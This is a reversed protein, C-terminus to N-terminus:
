KSFRNIDGFNMTRMLSGRKFEDNNNINSSTRMNNNNEEAIQSDIHSILSFMERGKKEKVKQRSMIQSEISQTVVNLNIFM